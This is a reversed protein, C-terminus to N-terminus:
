SKIFLSESRKELLERKELLLDEEHLHKRKEEQLHEEPLLLKEEGRPLLEEERGQEQHNPTKEHITHTKDSACESWM